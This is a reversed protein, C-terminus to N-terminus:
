LTEEYQSNGGWLMVRVRTLTGSIPERHGLRHGLGPSVQWSSGHVELLSGLKSGQETKSGQEIGQVSNSLTRDWSQVAREAHCYGKIEVGGWEEEGGEVVEFTWVDAM